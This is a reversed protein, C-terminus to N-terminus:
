AALLSHLLIFIASFGRPKTLFDTFLVATKDIIFTRGLSGNWGNWGKWGKWSKWGNWGYM